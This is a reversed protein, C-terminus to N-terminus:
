KTLGAYLEVLGQKEQEWNLTLAAAQAAERYESRRDNAAIIARAIDRPDTVDCVEGTGTENVFRAITPMDSAVMPTRAMISDFVKNPATLQYSQSLAEILVTSIHAAAMRPVVQEAPIRGVFEVRDGFPAAAAHMAAEYEPQAIPGVLEVIYEAPLFELAAILPLAGRGHQFVGVSTVRIKPDADRAAWAPALEEDTFFRPVNLLTLSPGRYGYKGLIVETFAPSATILADASRLMLGEARVLMARKAHVKDAAHGSWLEHSDYVVKATGGSLRAAILCPLLSDIDHAHYIDAREDRLPRAISWYPIRSTKSIRRVEIEGVRESRPLEPRADAYVKVDYGAEALADAERRVRADHTFANNVRM